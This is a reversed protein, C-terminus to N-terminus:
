LRINCIQSRSTRILATVQLILNLSLIVPLSSSGTLSGPIIEISRSCSVNLVRPTVTGRCTPPLKPIAQLRTQRLSPM